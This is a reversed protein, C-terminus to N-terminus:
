YYERRIRIKRNIKRSRQQYKNWISRKKVKLFEWTMSEELERKTDINEKRLRTISEESERNTDM